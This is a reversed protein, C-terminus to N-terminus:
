REPSSDAASQHAEEGSKRREHELKQRAEEDQQQKQLASQRQQEAERKLEELRQQAIEGFYTDGFRRVFAELETISKSDRAHMWAEAAASPQAAPLPVPASRTLAPGAFYFPEGSISASVYPRQVGGTASLVDDRVRGGLLQVALGPEPLRKAFATAFPSNAGTGDSAVQGPAAAFIVLVGDTDVARLGRNSNRDARPWGRGFPNDRCADLVLIRLRAGALSNLVLETNIAEFDLDRQQALTADTPILWNAGQAEMGHGAYYILAVDAGDAESRFRRLEQRFQALTLDTRPKVDGFGVKALAAAVLNADNIANKLRAKSSYTVNGIVLAARKQAEAPVAPTAGFPFLLFVFLARQLM